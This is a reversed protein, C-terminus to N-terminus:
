LIPTTLGARAAGEILDRALHHAWRGTAQGVDPVQVVTCGARHAAEAGTESDEFAL